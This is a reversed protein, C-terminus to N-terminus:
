VKKYGKNQKRINKNISVIPLDIKVSDEYDQDDEYTNLDQDKIFIKEFIYIYINIIIKIYLIYILIL